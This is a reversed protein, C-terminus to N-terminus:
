PNIEGISIKVFGDPAQGTMTDQSNVAPFVLFRQFDIQFDTGVCIDAPQALHDDFAGRWIFIYQFAGGGVAIFTEDTGLYFPFDAIFKCFLCFFLSNLDKGRIQATQEQLRRKGTLGNETEIRPVACAAFSSDDVRGTGHQGVPGIVKRARFFLTMFAGISQGVHDPLM